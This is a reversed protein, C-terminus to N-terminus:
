RTRWFERSRYNRNEFCGRWVDFRPLMLEVAIRDKAFHSWAERRCAKAHLRALLSSLPQVHWHQKASVPFDLFGKVSVCPVFGLTEDQFYLGASRHVVVLEQLVQELCAHHLIDPISSDRDPIGIPPAVVEARYAAKEISKVRTAAQAQRNFAHKHHAVSRAGRTERPRAM